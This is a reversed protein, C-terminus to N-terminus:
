GRTTGFLASGVLQRFKRKSLTAQLRNALFVCPVANRSALAHKRDDNRIQRADTWHAQGNLEFIAKLSGARFVALDCRGYKWIHALYPSDAPEPFLEKLPVELKLAFLHGWKSQIYNELAKTEPTIYAEYNM